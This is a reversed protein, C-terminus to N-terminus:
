IHCDREGLYNKIQELFYEANEVQKIAQEKELVYFDDYDSANRIIFLSEIIDSLKSDFIKTKIYNLRFHSIVASHKKFDVSELALISRICHFICYYSRNAASKYNNIEIMTKAADLCQHAQEFRWEALRKEKDM